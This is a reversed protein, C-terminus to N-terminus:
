ITYVLTSPVRTYVISLFYFCYIYINKINKIIKIFKDFIIIFINEKLTTNFKTYIFTM